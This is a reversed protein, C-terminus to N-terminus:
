KSDTKIEYYALERMFVDKDVPQTSDDLLKSLSPADGLQSTKWPVLALSKPSDDNGLVSMGSMHVDGAPKAAAAEGAPAPSAEPAESSKGDHAAPGNDAPAAVTPPATAPGEAQQNAAGAAALAPSKSPQKAGVVAATLPVAADDAVVSGSIALMSVCLILARQM